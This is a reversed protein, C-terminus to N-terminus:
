FNLWRAEDIRIISYFWIFLLTPTAKFDFDVDLDREYLFEEPSPDCTALLVLECSFNNFGSKCYM